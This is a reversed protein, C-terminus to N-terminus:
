RWLEREGVWPRGAGLRHLRRWEGDVWGGSQPPLLVQPVELNSRAAATVDPRWEPRGATVTEMSSSSNTSGGQCALETGAGCSHVEDAACRFLDPTWIM